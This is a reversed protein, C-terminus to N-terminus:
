KRRLQLEPKSCQAEIASILVLCVSKVQRNIHIIEARTFRKGINDATDQGHAINHRLGVVEDIRLLHMRRQAPTRKIGLVDFIMQLQTHKFGSGNNPFRARNESPSDHFLAEFLKAKNAFINQRDCKRIGDFEGHLFLGMLPYTLDEIRHSHSVIVSVATTFVTKVTYEYAAYMQVFSLGKATQEVNGSLGRTAQLFSEAAAFRDAVEARIATFM